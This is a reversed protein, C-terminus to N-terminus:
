LRIVSIECDSGVAKCALEDGVRGVAMFSATVRDVNYQAPKYAGPPQTQTKNIM